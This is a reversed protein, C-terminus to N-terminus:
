CLYIEWEHKTGLVLLHPQRGTLTVFPGLRNSISRPVHKWQQQLLSSVHGTGWQSTISRGSPVTVEGWTEHILALSVAVYKSFPPSFSYVVMDGSYIPIKGMLGLSSWPWRFRAKLRVREAWATEQLQKWLFREWDASLNWNVVREALFCCKVQKAVINLNWSKIM